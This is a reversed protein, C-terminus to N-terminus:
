PAARDEIVAFAGLFLCCAVPSLCCAIFPTTATPSWRDAPVWWQRNGTAQRRNGTEPFRLSGRSSTALAMGGLGRDGQDSRKVAAIGAGIAKRVDVIPCTTEAHSSSAFV